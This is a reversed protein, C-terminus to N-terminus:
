PKSCPSAEVAFHSYVTETAVGAEEAVDRMGSAAWGRTTFLRSAADMLAGRTEQARKARIPSEYRRSTKAAATKGPVDSLM